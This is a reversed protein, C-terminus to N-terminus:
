TVSVSPVEFIMERSNWKLKMNWVKKIILFISEILYSPLTFVTPIHSFPKKLKLYSITFMKFIFVFILIKELLASNESFYNIVCTVKGCHM